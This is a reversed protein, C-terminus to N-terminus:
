NLPRKQPHPADGDALMAVYKEIRRARTDSRRADHIRHLIAFRNQGSLRDFSAAAAPNAALAAALDAPVEM